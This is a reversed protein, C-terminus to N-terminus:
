RNEITDKPANKRIYQLIERYAIATSHERDEIDIEWYDRRKSLWRIVLPIKKRPIRLKINFDIHENADLHQNDTVDEREVFSFEISQTDLQDTRKFDVLVRSPTGECDQIIFCDKSNTRNNEPM